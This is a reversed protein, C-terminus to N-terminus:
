RKPHVVLASLARAYRPALAPRLRSSQEPGKDLHYVSATTPTVLINFCCLDHPPSAGHRVMLLEVVVAGTRTPPRDGEALRRDVYKNECRDDFQSRQHGVKLRVPGHLDYHELRRIGIKEDGM